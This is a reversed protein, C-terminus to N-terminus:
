ASTIRLVGREAAPVKVDIAGQTIRKTHCEQGNWTARYREAPALCAVLSLLRGSTGSTTLDAELAACDPAVQLENVWVDFGTTLRGPRYYAGFWPLVPSSLSTFQHWGAGRGTAVIFHEHCNYSADVERKWVELGTRAIQWAREDQGLDLCTKWFFWQHAMWVAGNWYGDLRYYPAGQDVATIGIPTWLESPDFLHGLLRAEQEPTCIGAELPYVGDLGRNLNVGGEDRLFGAPRGSDDHVVYSFYGADEDWAYSQLAQRFLRIDQDYAPVDEDRGLALAAQRLIKATRIAHCTNSAPAV